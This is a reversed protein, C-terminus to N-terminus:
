VYPTTPLTLHTYSVSIISLSQFADLVGQESIFKVAVPAFILSGAGFGGATLGGALGKKDPFWKVTNSVTCSYILGIGSGAMLGYTIYITYINVVMGSLYLGLGFIIGGVIVVIKPGYKKVFKGSIIMAIPLISLNITFAFSTQSATWGFYDILPQQFVSWAYAFGICLNIIISITLILWRKISEM